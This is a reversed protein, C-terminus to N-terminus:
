IDMNHLINDYIRSKQINKSYSFLLLPYASDIIEMFDAVQPFECSSPSICTDNICICMRPVNHFLSVYQQTGKVILM